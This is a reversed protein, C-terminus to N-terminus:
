KARTIWVAEVRRAARSPWATKKKREKESARERGIDTYTYQERPSRNARASPHEIAAQANTIPLTEEQIGACLRRKRLCRVATACSKKTIILILYNVTFTTTKAKRLYVCAQFKRLKQVWARCVAQECIIRQAYLAYCCQLRARRQQQKQQHQVPAQPRPERIKKRMESELIKYDSEKSNRIKDNIENIAGRLRAKLYVKKRKVIGAIVVPWKSNSIFAMRAPIDGSNPRSSRDVVNYALNRLEQCPCCFLSLLPEDHPWTPPMIFRDICLASIHWIVFAHTRLSFVDFCLTKTTTSDDNLFRNQMVIYVYMEFFFVKFTIRPAIIKPFLFVFNSLSAPPSTRREGRYRIFLIPFSSSAAVSHREKAGGFELSECARREKMGSWENYVRSFM